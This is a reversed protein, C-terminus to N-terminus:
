EDDPNSMDFSMEIDGKNESNVNTATPEKEKVSGGSAADIKNINEDKILKKSAKKALTQKQEEVLSEAFAQDAEEEEEAMEPVYLDIASNYILNYPTEEVQQDYYHGVIDTWSLSFTDDFSINFQHAYERRVRREFAVDTKLLKGEIAELQLCSYINFKEKESM